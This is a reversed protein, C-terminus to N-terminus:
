LEEDKKWSQRKELRMDFECRISCFCIGSVCVPLERGLCIVKDLLCGTCLRTLIIEVNCYICRKTFQRVDAM